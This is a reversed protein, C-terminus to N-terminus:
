TDASLPLEQFGITRSKGATNDTSTWVSRYAVPHYTDDKWIVQPVQRSDLAFNLKFNALRHRDAGDEVRQFRAIRNQAPRNAIVACQFPTWENPEERALFVDRVLRWFGHQRFRYNFSLFREEDDARHRTTSTM